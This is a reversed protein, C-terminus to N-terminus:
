QNDLWDAFSLSTDGEKVEFKWDERAENWEDLGLDTEGSDVAIRWATRAEDDAETEHADNSADYDSESNLWSEENARVVSAGEFAFRAAEEAVEDFIYYRWARGKANDYDSPISVVDGPNIKVVLVRGQGGQYHPLYDWSCFHLGQSCTNQRRDDVQNRAMEIYTHLANATQGNDYYSGYDDRVKKYALFHGDNTIPMRSKELWLYLEDVAVKSPNLMLNDLFLCWPAPDLGKSVIDLIRSTLHSHVIQDKYYVADTGVRVNGIKLGQMFTRVSVLKLLADEDETKNQLEQLVTNFNPHSADVPHPAGKLFVTITDGNFAFPIAPM